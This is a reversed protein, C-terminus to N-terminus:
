KTAFVRIYGTVGGVSVEIWDQETASTSGADEFSFTETALQCEHKGSFLYDDKDATIGVGGAIMSNTVNQNITSANSHYIGGFTDAARSTRAAGTNDAILIEDSTNAANILDFSQSYKGGYATSNESFIARFAQTSLDIGSNSNFELYTTAYAGSDTSLTIDSGTDFVDFIISQGNVSDDILTKNTGSSDFTIKQEADMLFVSDALESVTVKESTYASVGDYISSLVLSDKNIPPTVASLGTVKVDAM